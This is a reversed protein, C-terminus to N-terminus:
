VGTFIMNDKTRFIATFHQNTTHIFAQFFDDILKSFFQSAFYQFKFYHGILDMVSLCIAM